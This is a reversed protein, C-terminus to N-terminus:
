EKSVAEDLNLVALCLATWAAHDVVDLSGDRPSEGVALLKGAAAADRRYEGRARALGSLLIEAEAETPRRSLVRLYAEDLRSRDDAHSQMVSQALARAAEVFTVDNMTLLSHLPTNTRFVKVTCVQRAANDFFMTPGIIRRWFTYLSRRYLAAGHDQVYKKNGFTAEEWVGPPQYGKVAPGGLTTVLLGSAALAQDRLMWSPLRYRPGRALLRNEPDREQLAPSVRSSQRYTRSTVMLRILRQLDWGHSRFDDALWDLLAAHQPIEGQAGFDEPTKVLGIGFIQQWVRNVTVRATLPNEDSMLWRALGLRTRPADADLPPLSAPTAASVEEGPQNYLGRDLVFTKRPERLDEMVMVKPVSAEVKQRAAQLKDRQRALQTYEADSALWATRVADTQKKSRQAAETRLAEILERMEQAPETESMEATLEVLRQAEWAAQGPAIEAERAQLQDRLPKLRADFRALEERQAESYIAAVPATQPDRGGGTVPTQNFFAFLAYYDKRSLQDFKHDHCRCCNFTLGLWITGTTEAMDMVYDVRNEEPIRGGEGNIMHNRCFGTALKQELTGQPLLDGALQEITFEDFPQNGNFAAVVWDRWPWMTRESDGQYGNSDAYRAADLWDWAMREGYAPSALLRDVAREYADPGEDALFAKLEERTPPLGTLDLTVRRLLRFREAEPAPEVGEHQLRALVFADIPNIPWDSPTVVPVRPREIPRWSWHERYEAGQAIWQRILEMQQPTLTRNSDAPPMQLDPDSSTIRRYLQSAAPEGPVVVAGEALKSRLGANTDLRLETVRSGDDPGHCLFCNDSLIPRIDRAFDVEAAALGGAWWAALACATAVLSRLNRGTAHQPEM